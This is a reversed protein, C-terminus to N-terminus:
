ISMSQLSVLNRLFLIFILGSIPQGYLNYTVNILFMCLTNNMLCPTQCINLGLFQQQSPLSRVIMPKQKVIKSQGDTKNNKLQVSQKSTNEPQDPKESKKDRSKNTTKVQAEAQMLQGWTRVANMTSDRVTTGDPPNFVGTKIVNMLLHSTRSIKTLCDAINEESLCYRLEQAIKDVEISQRIALVETQLRYDDMNGKLHHVNSFLAQNGTM